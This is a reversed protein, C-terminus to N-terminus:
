EEKNLDLYFYRISWFSYVLYFSFSLNSLYWSCSFEGIKHSQFWSTYLHLLRYFALYYSLKWTLLSFMLFFYHLIVCLILLLMIIIYISHKRVLIFCCHLLSSFYRSLTITQSGYFLFSLFEQWHNKLSFLIFWKFYTVTSLCCSMSLLQSYSSNCSHLFNQQTGAERDWGRKINETNITIIMLKMTKRTGLYSWLLKKSFFKDYTM